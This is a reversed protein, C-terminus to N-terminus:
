LLAGAAGPVIVSKTIPIFDFPGIPRSVFESIEFSVQPYLLRWFKGGLEGVTVDV